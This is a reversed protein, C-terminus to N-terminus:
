VPSTAQMRALEDRVADALRQQLREIEGSQGSIRADQPRERRLRDRARVIERIRGILGGVDDPRAPHRLPPGPDRMPM